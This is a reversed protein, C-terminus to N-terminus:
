MFCPNCLGLFVLQNFSNIIKDGCIRVIRGDSFCSPLIFFFFSFFFRSPLILFFFFLRDPIFLKGPSVNRDLRQIFGELTYEMGSEAEPHSCILEEEAGQEMSQVGVQIRGDDGALKLLIANSQESMSAVPETKERVINQVDDMIVDNKTSPSCLQDHYSGLGLCSPDKPPSSDGRHGDAQNISPRELSSGRKLNQVQGTRPITEFADHMVISDLCVKLATPSFAEGQQAMEVHRGEYNQEQVSTPIANNGDNNSSGAIVKQKKEPPDDIAARAADQVEEPDNQIVMEMWKRRQGQLYLYSNFLFHIKFHKDSFFGALYDLIFYFNFFNLSPFVMEMHSQGARSQELENLAKRWHWNHRTRKMSGAMAIIALPLGGCEKVICEALRKKESSLEIHHGLKLMFLNLGEEDSLPNVRVNRDTVRQCVEESRTSVILKCGKLSVPIGVVHPEFDDWLDDLILIWKQKHTLEKSLKAARHVDDDDCSLVLNLHKAILNQLTEISFDEQPVTVWYFFHSIDQSQLLENYIHKLMETKGVGGMGYIGITSVKDDMIWSRIKRTNEVFARGMLMTSSAPLPVGRTEMLHAAAAMVDWPKNVLHRVQDETQTAEGTTEQAGGLDEGTPMRSSVNGHLAARAADKIEVPVKNCIRIGRGTFGSLHSKIRTITTGKGFELDCFKCVARGADM